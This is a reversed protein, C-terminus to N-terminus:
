KRKTVKKKTAPKPKPEAETEPEPQEALEAEPKDKPARLCGAKILRDATEQDPPTWERQDQPGITRGGARFASKIRHPRM